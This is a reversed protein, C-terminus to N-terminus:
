VVNTISKLVNKMKRQFSQPVNYIESPMVKWQYRGHSAAFTALAKLYETLKIQCVWNVILSVIFLLM